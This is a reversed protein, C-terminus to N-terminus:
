LSTSVYECAVRHCSTAVQRFRLGGCDQCKRCRMVGRKRRRVGAVRAGSFFRLVIECRTLHSRLGRFTRTAHQRSSGLALGQRSRPFGVSGRARTARSAAMLRGAIHRLVNGLSMVAPLHNTIAALFFAAFFFPPAFFFAAFFFFYAPRWVQCTRPSQDASKTPWDGIAEGGM